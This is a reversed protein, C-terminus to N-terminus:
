DIGAAAAETTAATEILRLPQGDFRYELAQQLEDLKRVQVCLADAKAEIAKTRVDLMRDLEADMRETREEMEDARGTMAQWMASRMMSGTYERMADELRAQFREDFVEQDWRGRGLTGDVHDLARKRDRDLKHAKRESGSLAVAVGSLADFVVDVTDRAVGAVQPMLARTEAEMLRLRQADADSVQQVRHDVSLEGGHFFVEKPSGEDRYLWIGGGDALVNYATSLGCQRSSVQPRRSEDASANAATATAALLILCAISAPRM